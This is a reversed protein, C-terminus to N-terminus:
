REDGSEAVTLGGRADGSLALAGEVANPHRARIAAIARAAADKIQRQRLIGRTLPSLRALDAPGGIVGLGEIAALQAAVSDSALLRALWGADGAGGSLALAAVYHPVAPVAREDVRGALAGLLPGLTAGAEALARGVEGASLVMARLDAEPLMDLWADAGGSPMVLLARMVAQRVLPREDDGFRRLLWGAAEVYRAREFVAALGILMTPEGGRGSPALTLLARAIAGLEADPRGARQVLQGIVMPANAPGVEAILPMLREMEFWAVLKTWAGRAEARSAGAGRAVTALAEFSAPDKKRTRRVEGRALDQRAEPDLEALTRLQRRVAPDPDGEVLGMLPAFRRKGARFTMIEALRTVKTLLEQLRAEGLGESVWPALELGEAGVSAGARFLEVLLSRVEASLAGLTPLEDTYIWVADDLERDGTRLRAGESLAREAAVLRLAAVSGDLPVVVRVGADSGRDAVVELRASVGGITIQWTAHDVLVPAYGEMVKKWAALGM